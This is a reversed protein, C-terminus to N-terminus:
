TMGQAAAYESCAHMITTHDRGFLAGTEPYSLGLTDKTVAYLERRARAISATRGRGLLEAVSVGHKKAVSMAFSQV